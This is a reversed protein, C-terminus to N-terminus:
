HARTRQRSEDSAFVRVLEAVLWKTSRLFFEADMHNPNVDGGVHGIARNNRLEYVAILVRPMQIRVSREFRAKDAQELAMCAAVMNSPKSPASAFSGRLYGDLISYVVECVKGSKLGVSEWRGSRYDALQEELLTLIPGRLGLPINSLAEDLTTNM